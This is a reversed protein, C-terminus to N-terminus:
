HMLFGFVIAFCIGINAALAHLKNSQPVLEDLAIYVMAGAAFALGGAIFIESIQFLALGILAGIPTFLGAALTYLVIKLRGLGGAHLPGGIALGEPINHLAIAIALALGLQPSSAVGAGIALGEPLNHLAIGFLVLYGSRLLPNNKATPVVVSGDMEQLELLSEDAHPMKKDLLMMMGVGFLFAIAAIGESGLEVAEPVLGFLSIAIMIGGAFGLMGALVRHNPKGCLVLLLVGLVTSAGAFFSFLLTQGPTTAIPGTFDHHPHALFFPTLIPNM